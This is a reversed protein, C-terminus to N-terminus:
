QPSTGKIPYAPVHITPLNCKASFIVGTCKRTFFVRKPPNPPGQTSKKRTENNAPSHRPKRSFVEKQLFHHDKPSLIHSPGWASCQVPTRNTNLPLTRTLKYASLWAQNLRHHLFRWSRLSRPTLRGSTRHWLLPHLGPPWEGPRGQHTSALYRLAFSLLPTSVYLPLHGETHGTPNGKSPWISPM